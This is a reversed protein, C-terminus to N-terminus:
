AKWQVAELFADTKPRRLLLPFWCKCDGEADRFEAASGAEIRPKNGSLALCGAVLVVVVVVPDLGSWGLSRM